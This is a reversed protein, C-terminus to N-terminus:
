KYGWGSNRKWLERKKKKKSEYSIEDYRVMNPAAGSSVNLIFMYTTEIEMIKEFQIWIQSDCFNIFM